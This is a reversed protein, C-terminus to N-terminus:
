AASGRWEPRGTRSAASPASGTRPRSAPFRTGAGAASKSGRSRLEAYIFRTLGIRLVVIEISIWMGLPLLYVLYREANPLVPRLADSLLGVIWILGVALICLVLFSGVFRRWGHAWRKWSAKLVDRREAQSLGLDKPVLRAGYGSLM